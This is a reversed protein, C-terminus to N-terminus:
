HASPCERVRPEFTSNVPGGVSALFWGFREQEGNMGKSRWIVPLFPVMSGFSTFLFFYLVCGPIYSATLM